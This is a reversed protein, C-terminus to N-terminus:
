KLPRTFELHIFYADLKNNKKCLREKRTGTEQVTTGAEKIRTEIGGASSSVISLGEKTARLKTLHWHSESFHGDSFSSSWPM